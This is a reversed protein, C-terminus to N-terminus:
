CYKTSSTSSQRTLEQKETASCGHYDSEAIEEENEDGSERESEDEEDGSGQTSDVEEEDSGSNLKEYKDETEVPILAPAGVYFMEQVKDFEIESVFYKFQVEVPEGVPALQHIQIVKKDGKSVYAVKGGPPSVQSVLKKLDKSLADNLSSIHDKFITVKGFLLSFNLNEDVCDRSPVSKEKKFLCQYIKFDPKDKWPLLCQYLAALSNQSELLLIVSFSEKLSCCIIDIISKIYEFNKDCVNLVVVDFESLDLDSLHQFIEVKIAEDFTVGLQVSKVYQKLRLGQYNRKRGYVEAGSFQQLCEPNFKGPFKEQLSEIDKVGVACAIVKKEDNTARNAKSSAELLEKMSMKNEIVQDCHDMFFQPPCSGLQRFLSTTLTNPERRKMKAKVGRDKADSTQYSQFKDLVFILKALASNPWLTVKNYVALENNGLHRSHAIKEIVEFAESHDKTKELIGGYIFFLAENSSSSQFSSAIDNCKINLYNSLSATNVKLIFCLISRDEPFGPVSKIKNIADVKKIAEFRHVGHVVYYKDDNDELQFKDPSVPVVSVVLQSLELRETMSDAIENVKQQNIPLFMDPSVELKDLLISQYRVYSSVVSKELGGGESIMNQYNKEISESKTLKKNTTNFYDTLKKKKTKPSIKLSQEDKNGIVIVADVALRVFEEYESLSGGLGVLGDEDLGSGDHNFGTVDNVDSKYNCFQESSTLLSIYAALVRPNKMLLAACLQNFPNVSALFPDMRDGRFKATENDVNKFVFCKGEEEGLDKYQCELVPEWIPRRQSANGASTFPGTRTGSKKLIHVQIKKSMKVAFITWSPRSNLSKPTKVKAGPRSKSKSGGSAPRSRPTSDDTGPHGPHSPTPTSTLQSVVKSSPPDEPDGPSCGSIVQSAKNPSGSVIGMKLSKLASSKM